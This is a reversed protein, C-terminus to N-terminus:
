TTGVKTVLGPGDVNLQFRTTILGGDIKVQGFDFATTAPTLKGAQSSGLMVLLLATAVLVVIPAVVWMWLYSRRARHHYPRPHSQKVTGPPPTKGTSVRNPSPTAKRVPHTAM